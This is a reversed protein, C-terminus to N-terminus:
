YKTGVAGRPPTRPKFLESIGGTSVSPKNTRDVPFQKAGGEGYNAVEVQRVWGMLELFRDLTITEISLKRAQERINNWDDRLEPPSNVGPVEGLVLYRTDMSIEGQRNGAEDMEADVIGGNARILTHMRQLDSRGDGDLDIVGALAFRRREGLSWVPTYIRDGVLVPDLLNDDVIRAEALHPSRVRTVEISAKKSAESLDGAGAGFVSFKTQPRVADAEGLNIWVTGGRHDVWRIEGHFQDPTEVRMKNITA